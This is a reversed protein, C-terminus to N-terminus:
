KEDDGSEIVVAEVETAARRKNIEEIHANYEEFSFAHRHEQVQTAGDNLLQSKDLSVAAALASDKLNLKRLQEPDQAIQDLKMSFVQVAKQAALAAASATEAKLLGYVEAHREQLAALTRRHIGTRRVVETVNHGAASLFLSQIAVDRRTKEILPDGSNQAATDISAILGKLTEPNPAQTEM